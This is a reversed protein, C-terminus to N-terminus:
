AKRLQGKRILSMLQDNQEQRGKYGTIGNAQAIQARHRFSTNTEGVAKLAEVISPDSGKYAPYCGASSSSSVSASSASSAATSTSATSTSSTTGSTDRPTSPGQATVIDPNSSSVVATASGTSATAQTSSQVPTSVTTNTAPVSATTNVTTAASASDSGVGHYYTNVLQQLSEETTVFIAFPSYGNFHAQVKGQTSIKAYQATVGDADSSSGTYRLVLAYSNGTFASSFEEQLKFTVDAPQSGSLKGYYIAEVDEATTGPKSGNANKKLYQKVLETMIPKVLKDNVDDYDSGTVISVTVGGSPNLKSADAKGMLSGGWSDAIQQVAKLDFKNSSANYAQSITAAAAPCTSAEATVGISFAMLLSLAMAGARKWVNRM